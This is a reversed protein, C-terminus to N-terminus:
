RFIKDFIRTIFRRNETIIEAGGQLQQQFPIVKKQSTILTDPLLIEVMINKQNNPLAAKSQVKGYIVGYEQAPFNDLKIMVKQNPQVKGSGAIPVSMMGVIHKEQSMEPNIAM